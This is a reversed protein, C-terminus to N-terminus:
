GREFTVAAEPIRADPLLEWLWLRAGTEHRRERCNAGRREVIRANATTTGPRCSVYVTCGCWLTITYSM